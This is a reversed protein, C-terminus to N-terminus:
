CPSYTLLFERMVDAELLFSRAKHSTATKETLGMKESHYLELMGPSMLLSM